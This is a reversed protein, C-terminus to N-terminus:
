ILKCAAKRKRNIKLFKNVKKGFYIKRLKNASQDIVAVLATKIKKENVTGYKGYRSISSCYGSFYKNLQKKFKRSKTNIDGGVQENAITKTGIKTQEKVEQPSMDNILKIYYNSTNIKHFGIVKGTAVDQVAVVMGLYAEIEYLPGYFLGSGITGYHKEEVAPYLYILKTLNNSKAKALVMKNASIEKRIEKLSTHFQLNLGLLSTIIDASTSMSSVHDFYDSGLGELEEQSFNVNAITVQAIDQIVESIKNEIYANIEWTSEVFKGHTPIRTRLEIVNDFLNIIAVNQESGGKIIYKKDAAFIDSSVFTALLTIFVFNFFYKM